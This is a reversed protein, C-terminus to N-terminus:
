KGLMKRFMPNTQSLENYSGRASVRGESILFIEDCNRLTTLRHAVLIITIKNRLSVVADMVANETVGDLSSTAEDFILIKPSRYLARAIAIRQCQGGSLRVGREGVKTKYGNPLDNVIFDHLNAIKAACILADHDIDDMGFAINAAISDDVLYIQQPVYGILKQWNGRNSGTIKLEDVTLEGKQPELLGLILDIITSKGSGTLGAIGVTKYAPIKLNLNFLIQYTTDPYSFEINNLQISENFNIPILSDSRNEVETLNAMGDSVTDIAPGIFRLQTSCSYIQQLAPMLRYGSIAYLAVTPLALAIGHGDSIIALLLLIIGSYSAAELAFRPMQSITTSSVQHRAFIKAALDFRKVFFSELGIIKVEKNTGFAESVASFREKNARDREIGIRTLFRRSILFTALYIGGISSSVVLALIPDVLILLILLAIALVGQTILSLLPMLGGGIVTGVESLLVRGLESSNRNLFWEYPQNLYREMLRKSISYECMMAFKVQWYTVLAKLAQGGILLILTIFGLFLLFHNQNSFNFYQYLWALLSNTQISQPTSVVAIFPMVSAIGIADVLAMMFILLVLVLTKRKEQPTLLGILKRIVAM